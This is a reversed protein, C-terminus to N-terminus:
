YVPPSHLALHLASSIRGCNITSHLSSTKVLITLFEYEFDAELVPSDPKAPYGPLFADKFGPGVVIETSKDFLSADGIHDWHWHSWIISSITNTDVGGEILIENVNKPVNLAPIHNKISGSAEPSLNWWDKRCGNDFMISKGKQRNQILFAYDPYNFTEHGKMVPDVFAGAHM